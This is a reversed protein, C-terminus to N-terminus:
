LSVSDGDLTNELVFPIDKKMCRVSLLGWHGLLIATVHNVGTSPDELSYYFWDGQRQVPAPEDGLKMLGRKINEHASLFGQVAVPSFITERTLVFGEDGLDYGEIYFIPKNGNQETGICMFSNNDQAIYAGGWPLTSLFNGTLTRAILDPYRDKLNDM